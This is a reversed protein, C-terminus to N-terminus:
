VAIHGNKTKIMTVPLEVGFIGVVKLHVNQICNIIHKLPSIVALDKQIEVLHISEADQM